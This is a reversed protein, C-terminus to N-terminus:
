AEVLCERRSGGSEAMEEAADAGLSERRIWNEGATVLHSALPHSMLPHVEETPQDHDSPGNVAPRDDEIVM